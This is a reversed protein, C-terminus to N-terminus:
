GNVEAVKAAAAAQLDQIMKNRKEPDTEKLLLELISKASTTKTKKQTPDSEGIQQISPKWSELMSYVQEAPIPNKKNNLHRFIFNRRQMTMGALAATYVAEEGWNSVLDSLTGGLEMTSEVRVDKDQSFAVDNTIKGNKYDKTYSM